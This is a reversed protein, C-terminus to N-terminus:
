FHLATPEVSSRSLIKVKYMLFKVSLTVLLNLCLSEVHGVRVLVFVVIM